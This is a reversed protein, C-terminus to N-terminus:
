HARALYEENLGARFRKSKLNGRSSEQRLLNLTIHRLVAMNQPAHDTRIRSYDENFTMDLVWHVSNEIGWHQRILANARAADLVGRALYYRQEVTTRKSVTREAEIMIVRGLNPWRRRDNLYAITAPDSIM